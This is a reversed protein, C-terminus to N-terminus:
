TQYTLSKGCSPCFKQQTTLRYGCYACYSILGQTEDYSEPSSGSDYHYPYYSESPTSLHSKRKKRLYMLVGLILVIVVVVGIIILVFMIDQPVTPQILVVILFDESEGEGDFATVLLYALYGDQSDSDYQSATSLQKTGTITSFAMTYPIVFSGTHTDSSPDYTMESFINTKPRIPVIFNDESISAIFINVSVRMESSDQDEYSVSDTLNIRFDLRSGQSVLYINLSDDTHTEDFTISQSNDIIILSSEEVFEPPNNNILSAHRPSYPNHYNSIPNFPVIYLIAFGPVDTSTPTYEYSYKFPTPM